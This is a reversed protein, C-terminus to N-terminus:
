RDDLHEPTAESEPEPQKATTPTKKKKLDFLAPLRLQLLVAHRPAWATSRPRQLMQFQYGARVQWGHPLAFSIGARSWSRFLGRGNELALDEYLWPAVPKLPWTFEFRQRLRNREGRDAPLWHHEYITSGILKTTGLPYSVCANLSRQWGLRVLDNGRLFSSYGARVSWGHAVPFRASASYRGIFTNRPFVEDSRFEVTTTAVLRDSRFVPVTLEGWVGPEAAAAPLVYLTGIVALRAVTVGINGFFSRQM